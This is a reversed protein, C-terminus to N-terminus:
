LASADRLVIGLCRLIESLGCLLSVYHGLVVKGDQVGGALARLLKTYCVNYSTIRLVVGALTAHVGSKLVAVWLPVGILFYAAPRTVGLRNLCALGLILVASIVLSLLSLEATYFM